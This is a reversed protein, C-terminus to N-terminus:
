LFEGIIEGEGLRVSSEQETGSGPEPTEMQIDEPGLIFVPTSLLPVTEESSGTRVRSVFM